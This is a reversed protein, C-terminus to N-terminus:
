KKSWLARLAEKSPSHEGRYDPRQSKINEDESDIDIKKEIRAVNGKSLFVIEGSILQVPTLDLKKALEMVRDEDKQKIVLSKGDHTKIVYSM